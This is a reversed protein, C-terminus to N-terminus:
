GFTIFGASELTELHEYGDYERIKWPEGPKVFELRCSVFGGMYPCEEYGISAFFARADDLAPTEDWRADLQRMWERDDKHALWFEVVRKDYALEAWGWTSWGAGYGPSVLVGYAGGKEYLEVGNYTM